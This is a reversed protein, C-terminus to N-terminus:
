LLLVVLSHNKPTRQGDAYSDDLRRQLTSCPLGIRSAVYAAVHASISTEKLVFRRDDCQVDVPELDNTDITDIIVRIGTEHRHISELIRDIKQDLDIRLDSSLNSFSSLPRYLRADEFSERIVTEEEQTYMKKWLFFLWKWKQDDHPNKVM